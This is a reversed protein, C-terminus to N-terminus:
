LKISKVGRIFQFVAKIPPGVILSWIHAFGYYKVDIGASVLIDLPFYSDKFNNYTFNNAIEFVCYTICNLAYLPIVIFITFIASLFRCIYNM